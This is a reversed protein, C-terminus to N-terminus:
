AGYKEKTFNNEELRIELKHAPELPNRQKLTDYEPEHVKELLDFGALRKRKKEPRSTPYKQAQDRKYDIGLMHNTWANASKRQKTNPKFKSAELRITYEQCCSNKMDPKYLINGSRRWGRDLLAKYDTPTIGLVTETDDIGALMMYSKNGVPVNCYGCSSDNCGYPYMITFSDLLAGPEAM